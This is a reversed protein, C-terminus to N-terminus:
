LFEEIVEVMRDWSFKDKEEIIRKVFEAEKDEKYFRTVADAIAQPNCSEVVYGTKGPEVVESLCGVDTAIVPKNFGFAVQVVGSGTGSIYPLMVIDAASFYLGIDENPIYKDIVIVNNSIDLENISKLYEEKDNWFEGVVMLKVDTNELITPLAELLYKLGKYKRVFGFFLLIRGGKVEIKQQAEYKSMRESSFVEYTPHFSEKVKCYPFMKKLNRFDEKSHVIFYDGLSLVVRTCVRDFFGSEHEVVNHCLFLIKIRTFAKILLSISWFQPTWFSVWWPFVLLEPNYKKTKFFVVLWSLPNLSDLVYEVGEEEIAVNSTDRDTKGPFLLHPYQRKFAYFKVDHSRKLSKYLLTTYHSIGGRFPYSPGVICIKM